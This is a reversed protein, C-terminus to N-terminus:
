QITHAFLKEITVLWKKREAMILRNIKTDDGVQIQLQEEVTTSESTM